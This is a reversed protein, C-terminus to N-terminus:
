RQELGSLRAMEPFRTKPLPISPDKRLAECFAALAGDRDGTKELTQGLSKLWKAEDKAPFGLELLARMCAAWTQDNVARRLKYRVLEKLFIEVDEAFHRFYPKKREEAILRTSLLFAEYIFHHRELEEALLFGCDMWDERELLKELPFQLGGAGRWEEVANGDEFHLLDFFILKAQYEPEGARAKLFDRYQFPKPADRRPRWAAHYVRDYQSRRQRDSLAEYASLLRRMDASAAAGCIDPHLRKAKERFARKIERLTAGPEVGLVQYYDIM